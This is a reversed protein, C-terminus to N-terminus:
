IKIVCDVLLANFFKELVIGLEERGFSWIYTEGTKKEPAHVVVCRGDVVAFNLRTLKEEPNVIDRLREKFFSKKNDPLRFFDYLLTNEINDYIFDDSPELVIIKVDLKLEPEIKVYPNQSEVKALVPIEKILKPHVFVDNQSECLVHISKTANSYMVKLIEFLKAFGDYEVIFQDKKLSLGAIANLWEQTIEQEKEKTLTSMIKLKASEIDFISLQGYFLFVRM